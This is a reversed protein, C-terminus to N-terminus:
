ERIQMIVYRTRLHEIFVCINSCDVCHTSTDKWADPEGDTVAASGSRALFTRSILHLGITPTLYFLILKLTLVQKGCEAVRHTIGIGCGVRKIQFHFGFRATSPDM